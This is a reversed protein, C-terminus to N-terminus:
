NPNQEHYKNKLSVNYENLIDVFRSSKLFNYVKPRYSSLKDDPDTSNLGPHCFFIDNEKPYTSLYYNFYKEVSPRHPHYGLLYRNHPINNQELLKTLEISPFSAITSALYLLPHNVFSIKGKNFLRIYIKKGEIIELLAQRVIPLHHCFQHGDIYDPFQGLCAVFLDIQSSIEKKLEEKKLKGLYCHAVLKAFSKKASQLPSPHTLTLHLGLEIKKSFPILEPFRKSWVNNTVICSIANIRSAHALSIIADSIPDNLAFDDACLIM